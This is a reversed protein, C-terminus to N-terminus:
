PFPLELQTGPRLKKRGRINIRALKRTRFVPKQRVDRWVVIWQHEGAHLIHDKEDASHIERQGITHLNM